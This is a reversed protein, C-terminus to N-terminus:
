PFTGLGSQGLFFFNMCRSFLHSILVDTCFLVIFPVDVKSASQNQLYAAFTAPSDAKLPFFPVPEDGWCSRVGM